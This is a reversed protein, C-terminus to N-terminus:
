AANILPFHVRHSSGVLRTFWVHRRSLILFFYLNQRGLDLPLLFVLMNSKQQELLVKGNFPYHLMGPKKMRLFHLRESEREGEWLCVCVCVCLMTIRGKKPSYLTNGLSRVRVWVLELGLRLLLDWGEVLGKFNHPAALIDKNEYFTGGKTTCLSYRPVWYAALILVCLCVCVRCVCQQKQFLFLFNSFVIGATRKEESPKHHKSRLIDEMSGPPPRNESGLLQHAKVM